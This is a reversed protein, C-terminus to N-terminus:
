ALPNQKRFFTLGVASLSILAAWVSPEPVTKQVLFSGVHPQALSPHHGASDGVRDDGTPFDLLFVGRFAPPMIIPSAPLETSTLGHSVRILFGDLMRDPASTVGLLSVLGSLQDGGTDGRIVAGSVVGPSFGFSHILSVVESEIRFGFFEGGM